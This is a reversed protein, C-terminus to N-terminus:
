RPEEGGGGRSGDDDYIRRSAQQPPITTSQQNNDPNSDFNIISETIAIKAHQPQQHSESPVQLLSSCFQCKRYMNNCDAHLVFM